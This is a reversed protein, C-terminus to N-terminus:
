KRPLESAGRFPLSKIREECSSLGIFDRGAGWGRCLQPSGACSAAARSGSRAPHCLPSLSPQASNKGTQPPLWCMSHAFGTATHSALTWCAPPLALDQMLGPPLTLTHDSPCSASCWGPPSPVDHLVLGLRLQSPRAQSAPLAASVWPHTLPNAHLIQLSDSALSCYTILLGRKNDCFNIKGKHWLAKKTEM